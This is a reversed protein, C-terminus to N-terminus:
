FIIKYLTKLMNNEADRENLSISFKNPKMVTHTGILGAMIPAEFLL